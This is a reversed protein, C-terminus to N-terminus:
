PHPTSTAEETRRRSQGPRRKPKRADIIAAVAVAAVAGTVATLALSALGQAYQTLKAALAAVAGGAGAQGLTTTRASRLATSVCAICRGSSIRSLATRRNQRDIDSIIKDFRRDLDKEDGALRAQLTMYYRYLVRALDSDTKSAM